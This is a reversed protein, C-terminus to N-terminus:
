APGLLRRLKRVAAALEAPRASGYGLIFGQRARAGAYSRSLPMTRLGEREARHALAVDDQARRLRAVLLM